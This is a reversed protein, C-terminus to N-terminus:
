DRGAGGPGAGAPFGPPSSACVVCGFLGGVRARKAVGRYGRAGGPPMTIGM